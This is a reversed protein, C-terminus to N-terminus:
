GSGRKGGGAAAPSVRVNTGGVCWLEPDLEIEQHLQQLVKGLIGAQNWANFLHWITRCPPFEAPLDRWPAATKMIWLMAEFAVRAPTPPRGRRKPTPFCPEIREWQEDTLAHRNM